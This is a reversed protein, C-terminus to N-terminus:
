FALCGADMQLMRGPLEYLKFRLSSQAVSVPNLDVGTMHAGQRAWNMAMTGLGCGIELVNRKRYMEYPFLKAFFGAETHLGQTWAYFTKDLRDFFTVKGYSLTETMGPETEYTTEGHVTGYTQPSAAWWDRITQRSVRANM